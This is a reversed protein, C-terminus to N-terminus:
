KVSNFIQKQNDYWQNWADVKIRCEHYQSYNATIVELVESLKETPATQLLDPCAQKLESPVEPFSRKVPTTVGCGTLLIVSAVILSRIM